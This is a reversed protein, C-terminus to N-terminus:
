TLLALNRGSSSMLGVLYSLLVEGSPVRRADLQGAM